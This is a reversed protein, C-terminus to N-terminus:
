VQVLYRSNDEAIRVEHKVDSATTLFLAREHTVETVKNGLINYVPYSTQKGKM